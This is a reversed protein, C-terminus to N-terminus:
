QPQRRHRLRPLAVRGIPLGRRGIITAARRRLQRRRLLGEQGVGRLALAKGALRSVARGARAAERRLARLLHARSGVRAGDKSPPLHAPGQGLM